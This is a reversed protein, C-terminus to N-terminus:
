YTTGWTWFHIFEHLSSNWYYINKLLIWFRIILLFRFSFQLVKHYKIVRWILCKKFLIFTCLLKNPVRSYYSITFRLLIKKMGLSLLECESLFWLSANMYIVTCVKFFINLHPNSKKYTKNTIKLELIVIKPANFFLEFNLYLSIPFM